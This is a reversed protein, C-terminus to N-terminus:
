TPTNSNMFVNLFDTIPISNITATNTTIASINLKACPVSYVIFDSSIQIMEQANNNTIATIAIPTYM